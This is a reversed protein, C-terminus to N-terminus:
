RRRRQAGADRVLPLAVHALQARRRAPAPAPAPTPSRSRRVQEGARRQRRRRRRADLAVARAARRAEAFGLPPPRTTRARRGADRRQAAVVAVDALRGFLDAHVALVQLLLHALQPDGGFLDGAILASRAPRACPPTICALDRKVFRHAPHEGLPHAAALLPMGAGDVLRRDVLADFLVVRQAAGGGAHDVQAALEVRLQAVRPAWSSPTSTRSPAASSRSSSVRPSAASAAARPAARRPRAASRSSAASVPSASTAFCFRTAKRSSMAGGARRSPGCARGGRWRARARAAAACASRSEAGVGVHAREFGHALVDLALRVLGMEAALEAVEVAERLASASATARACQSSSFRTRRPGNSGIIMGCVGRSTEAARPTLNGRGVAIVKPGYSRSQARQSRFASGSPRPGASCESWCGLGRSRGRTRAACGRHHPDTGPCAARATWYRDPPETLSQLDATSRTREM